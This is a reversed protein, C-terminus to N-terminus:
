PLYCLWKLICLVDESFSEPESRFTTFSILFFNWIWFCHPKFSVSVLYPLLNAQLIYQLWFTCLLTLYLVTLSEYVMERCLTNGDKDAERAGFGMRQLFSEELTESSLRLYCITLSDPKVVLKLVKRQGVFPHLLIGYWFFFIFIKILFRWRQQSAVLVIHGHM